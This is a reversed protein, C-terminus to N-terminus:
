DMLRLADEFTLLRTKLKSKARDIKLGGKLPRKATQELESTTIPRILGTDLGFYEATKIAIEYRSLYSAGGVHLVGEIDGTGGEIAVDALNAAHIPNNFQDTVIRLNEGAKLKDILWTIFNPRINRGSGILVNTRIILYNRPSERILKESELKTEGYYGIPDVQDTEAYPGNEGNFIYDTSFQVIKGFSTELLNKVVGINLDYALKRHKECGDVDTYAACNFIFDPNFRDILAKVPNFDTLDTKRYSLNPHPEFPREAIDLAEVTFGSILKSVLNQGLLGAAGTVLSKKM